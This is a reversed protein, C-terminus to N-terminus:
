FNVVKCDVCMEDPKKKYLCLQEHRKLDDHGVTLCLSFAPKVGDVLVSLQINAVKRVDPGGAVTTRTSLSWSNRETM